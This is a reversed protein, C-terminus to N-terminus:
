AIEIPFPIVEDIRQAGIALMVVRDFGLACGTSAPIGYDMAELLRSELPLTNKGDRQREQNAVISRERLIKPDLLEHYGNALELGRYFLEFREATRTDDCSIRALAAQSAPFHTVLVPALLGLTPQVRMSFLLHVWDDWDDSWDLRDIVNLELSKRALDGVDTDFCDIGVADQFVQQFSIRECTKTDLLCSLLDSTLQMGSDFNDGVRYWEAMTFEPNHRAGREGSRFVPGVQYISTMGCALLRKMAAEPSSQLFHRAPTAGDRISESTLEITVEILDIHRDIVTDRSITPTQVEVFGLEDFFSRLRRLLKARTALTENTATSRFSQQTLRQSEPENSNTM